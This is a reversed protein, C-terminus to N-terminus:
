YKIIIEKEILLNEKLGYKKTIILFSLALITGSLGYYADFIDPTNLISIWLEYVFNIILISIALYTVYKFSIGLLLWMFGIGSLLLYSIAFNSIHQYFNPFIQQLIDIRLFVKTRGLFLILVCILLIFFSLAIIFKPVYKINKM